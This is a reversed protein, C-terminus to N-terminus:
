SSEPNTVKLKSQVPFEASKKMVLSGPLLMGYVSYVQHISVRTCSRCSMELTVKISSCDGLIRIEMKHLVQNALASKRM